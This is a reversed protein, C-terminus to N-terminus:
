GGARALVSSLREGSLLEYRGPRWVEGALEVSGVDRISGLPPVRVVDGARLAVTQGAAGGADVVRREAQVRGEGPMVLGSTM